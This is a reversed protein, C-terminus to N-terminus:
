FKHRNDSNTGTTIFLYGFLAISHQADVLVGRNKCATIYDVQVLVVKDFAVDSTNLKKKIIEETLNDDVDVLLIHTLSEDLSDLKRSHSIPKVSGGLEEIKTTLIKRQGEGIPQYGTISFKKGVLPQPKSSRNAAMSVEKEVKKIGEKNKCRNSPQGTPKGCNLISCPERLM